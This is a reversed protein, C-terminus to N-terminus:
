SIPNMPKRDPCLRRSKYPFCPGSLNQIHTLTPPKLHLNKRLERQITIHTVIIFSRPLLFCIDWIGFDKRAWVADCARHAGTSVKGVLPHQATYRKRRKWYRKKCRQNILYGIYNFAVIVTNNIDEKWNAPNDSIMHHKICRLREKLRPLCKVLVNTM